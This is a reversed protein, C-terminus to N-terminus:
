PPFVFCAVGEDVYGFTAIASDREGASVTYFHDGAAGSYLRYLPVTGPAQSGFVFGTTGEIVYGFMSVANDREAASATYFHDGTPSHFLRYLPITGAVEGEYMQCATGEPTYAFTNIATDREGTSMTYFHDAVGGNFLRFLPGRCGGTCDVTGANGCPGGFGPPDKVSCSGDCLVKGGCHGCPQDLNPPTPKSCSGDCLTTGGCKGCAPGTMTKTECGGGGNCVRISISMSPGCGTPGCMTGSPERRCGGAGDCANSCADDPCGGTPDMGGAPVNACTGEQGAVACSKCSATCASGCCRGQACFGSACEPARTCVEGTLRKGCKGNRCVFGSACQGDSTCGSRCVNGSCGQYPSCGTAAPVACGGGQCMGAATASTGDCRADRCVTGDRYDQCGGAGDCRGNQGCSPAGEDACIKAPDKEGRAARPDLVGAKVATCKGRTEPSACFSCRGACAKDCCVGDVCFGSGCQEGRACDQGLGKPGCSGDVCTQPPVCTADSTCASLCVGKDCTSPSCTVPTGTMCSGDGDCLGAPLFRERDVCSAARCVTGAAYLACGGQGNCFGSQGCSDAAEKRCVGHLDESGSPLPACQGPHEPQDCAVCAGTCAVDCCVGDACFGTQCDVASECPIGARQRPAADPGDAGSVGPRGDAGGDAVVPRTKIAENGCGALAGMCVLAVLLRGPACVNALTTSLAM